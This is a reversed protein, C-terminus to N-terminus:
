CHAPMVFSRFRMVSGIIHFVPLMPQEANPQEANPQCALPGVTALALAGFILMM